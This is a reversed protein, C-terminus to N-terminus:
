CANRACPVEHDIFYFTLNFLRVDSFFNKKLLFFM